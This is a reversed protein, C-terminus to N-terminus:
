DSKTQIRPSPKDDAEVNTLEKWDEYFTDKFISIPDHYDHRTDLDDHVRAGSALVKYGILVLLNKLPVVLGTKECGAIFQRIVVEQSLTVSPSRM